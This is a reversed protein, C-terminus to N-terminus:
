KKSFHHTNNAAQNQLELLMTELHDIKTVQAKLTKNESSLQQITAQQNEIQAQQEQMAKVLLPTLAGYEVMWPDNKPDEGGISVPPPYAAYLQQALFGTQVDEPNDTKYNYDVVKIKMLDALGYRTSHINEKLREDSASTYEVANNGSQRIRGCYDGDPSTFQIFSSQQSSNYSAHGAVIELGEDRDSNSNATNEIKMVFQEFGSVNSRVNVRGNDEINLGEDANDDGTIWQNNTNIRSSFLVSGDAAIQLGEDANDDGTIWQNNTNIRSSFLVSGDAAIQLGENGGDGSIWNNDTHMNGRFISSGGVDLIRSPLNTGRNIGVKGDETVVFLNNSSIDRFLVIAPYSASVSKVTFTVDGAVANVGANGDNNIRIGESDGDNSLWKSNLKINQTATHDGLNDQLTDTDAQWTLSGSGDTKLVQGYTGDTTPLSYAENIEMRGDKYVTLANSRNGSSIGNGLTFLRDAYNFATTTAPTYLTNYRGFVMEYGSPAEVGYGLAVSYSGSADSNYGTAFSGPGTANCYSGFVTTFSSTARSNLGAAFSAIGSAVTAHGFAASAYGLSDTDWSKESNSSYGARFAAGDDDFFFRTHNYTNNDGNLQPSGFVFDSNSNPNVASGSKVVGNEVKFVEKNLLETWGSNQNFWFSETDSDFVLLGTAPNSIANRQATTMRPILMGKSTSQIDLMASSDPDVGAEGISIQAHTGFTAFVCLLLLVLSQM